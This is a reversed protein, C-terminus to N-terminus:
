SLRIGVVEYGLYSLFISMSGTGIGVELIKQPNEKIIEELLPAHLYLNALYDQLLFKREYFKDWRNEM